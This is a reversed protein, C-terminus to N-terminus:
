DSPLSEFAIHEPRASFRTLPICIEFRRRVSNAKESGCRQPVNKIPTPINIDTPGVVSWVGSKYRNAPADAINKTAAATPATKQFDGFDQCGVGTTIPIM